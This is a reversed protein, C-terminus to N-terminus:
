PCSVGLATLKSSLGVDEKSLVFVVKQTTSTPSSVQERDGERIASVYRMSIVLFSAGKTWYHLQDFVLQAGNIESHKQWESVGGTCRIWGEGRLRQTSDERIGLNPYDIELTYSVQLLRGDRSQTEHVNTRQDPVLLSVIAGLDGSDRADGKARWSLWASTGAATAIVLVVALVFKSRRM